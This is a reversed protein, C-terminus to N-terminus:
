IPEVNIRRSQDARLAFTTERIRFATPDGCPSRRVVQVTSGRTFGLDLLRRREIGEANLSVVVARRGPELTDLTQLL